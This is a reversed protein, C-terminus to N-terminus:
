SSREGLGLFRAVAEDIELWRGESGDSPSEWTLPKSMWAIPPYDRYPLKREKEERVSGSVVVVPLQEEICLAYLADGASESDMEDTERYLPSCDHIVLDPRFGEERFLRMAAELSRIAQSEPSWKKRIYDGIIELTDSDDEVYLIKLALTADTSTDHKKTM